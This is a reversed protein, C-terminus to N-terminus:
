ANETAYIEWGNYTTQGETLEDLKTKGEPSVGIHLVGKNSSYTYGDDTWSYTSGVTSTTEETEKNYFNYYTVGDVIEKTIVPLSTLIREVSLADLKTGM